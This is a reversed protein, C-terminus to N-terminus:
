NNIRYIFNAYASRWAEDISEQSDSDFRFYHGGETIRQNETPFRWTVYQGGFDALVVGEIEDMFLAKVVAGNACQGGVILKFEM